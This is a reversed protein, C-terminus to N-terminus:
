PVVTLTGLPFLSAGGADGALPLRRGDPLTYVGVVVQYDGPAIDAPLSIQHVQLFRDGQVWSNGPVDLQDMQALPVGDDGLVHTFLVADELPQRAQWHTILSLQAGPKAEEPILDYGALDVAAGFQAEVPTLREQWDDIMDARSIQYFHLPRDLDSERMPLTRVLEASKVYEDLLSPLPAFGPIVMMGTEERPLLLSGRGDFWRLTVDENDLTMEALAPSHYRDPTITSIAVEGRGNANVYDIAAVMTSEYQVRVEPYNAWTGFYERWTALALAAYLLVIGATYIHQSGSWRRTIWAGGAALAIAPLLYILPQVAIAQTMSLSPGTILVPAFGVVLWSLSLFASSGLLNERTVKGAVIWWLAQAMGLLFLIGFLPSLFPRGAINYRWAPDGEVFFLRLSALAQRGLASWGCFQLAYLPDALQRIRTEAEPNAQLYLLLPTAVLFMVILMIGVRWWMKRVFDREVVLWYLLLAPFIVWLARAPIYTYFTLGLIIGAAIFTMLKVNSRNWFGGQPAKMTQKSIVKKMALWFVLVAIIFLAPLLVSRLAQRGSMVPWFGAALGAGTMLAASRSFARNVWTYMAAIMILSAFASVLRGALISPGLFFMVAAVAYDYLPERGYGITFYISRLNENAIQWATLGHDAEDHTLGPPIDPLDHFRLAAALLLILLPWGYLEVWSWSARRRM